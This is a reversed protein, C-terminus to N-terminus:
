GMIVQGLGDSAAELIMEVSAAAIQILILLGECVVFLAADTWRHQIAAVLGLAIGLLMALGIFFASLNSLLKVIMLLLIVILWIPLVFVKLIWKMEAAGRREDKNYDGDSEKALIRFDQSFFM